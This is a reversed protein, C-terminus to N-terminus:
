SRCPAEGGGHMSASMAERYQSMLELFNKENQRFEESDTKINSKLIQM